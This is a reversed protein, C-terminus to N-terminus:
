RLYHKDFGFCEVGDVLYIRVPFIKYKFLPIVSKIDDSDIWYPKDFLKNKLDDITFFSKKNFRKSLFFSIYFITQLQGRTIIYEQEVYDRFRTYDNYFEEQKKQIDFLYTTQNNLKEKLDKNLIELSKLEDEKTTLIEQLKDLNVQQERLKTNYQIEKNKIEELTNEYKDTLDKVKERNEINENYLRNYESRFVYMDNLNREREEKVEPDNLEYHENLLLQIVLDFTWREETKIDELQKKTYPYVKIRQTMPETIM